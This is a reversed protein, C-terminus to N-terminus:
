MEWLVAKPQVPPKQKILSSNDLLPTLDFTGSLTCEERLAMEELRRGAQLLYISTDTDSIQCHDYVSILRRALRKAVEPEFKFIMEGTLGLGGYWEILAVLKANIAPELMSSMWQTASLPGYSGKQSTTRRKTDDKELKVLVSFHLQAREANYNCHCRRGFKMAEEFLAHYHRDCLFASESARSTAQDAVEEEPAAIITRKPYFKLKEFKKMRM